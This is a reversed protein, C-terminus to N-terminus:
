REVIPGKPKFVLMGALVLLLSAPEPVLNLSFNNAIIGDGGPPSDGFVRFLSHNTGDFPVIISFGIHSSGQSIATNVDSTVDLFVPVSNSSVAFHQGQIFPSNNWSHWDSVGLTGDAEYSMLDLPMVGQNPNGPNGYYDPQVSLIAQAVSGQGALNFEIIGEPQGPYQNDAWMLSSDTTLQSATGAVIPSLVSASACPSAIALILIIYKM